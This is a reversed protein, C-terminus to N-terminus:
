KKTNYKIDLEKKDNLVKQYDPHHPNNILWFDLEDLKNKIQTKTM